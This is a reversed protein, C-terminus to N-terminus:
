RYACKGRYYERSSYADQANWSHPLHVPVDITDQIKKFTWGDNISRINRANASVGLIVTLSLSVLHFFAKVFIKKM